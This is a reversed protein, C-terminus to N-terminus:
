PIMFEKYLLNASDAETQEHDAHQAHSGAQQHPILKKPELQLKLHQEEKNHAQIWAV